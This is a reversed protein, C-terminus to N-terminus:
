DANEAMRSLLLRCNLQMRPLHFPGKWHCGKLDLAVSGDRHLYGYWEGCEPDAFHYASWRLLKLFWEKYSRRGTLHFALLTAYLAECHVWWLKMDWELQEPQKGEIDVFYLIGGYDRDWGLTLSWDIIPLAREMLTRDNKYAAEELIFWATEIAHGPNICRGEPLHLLLGGDMGVTEFLARREPKVFCSLVHEITQAILDDYKREPDAARLIQLTNIKIMATSHSQTKRTENFVKPPLANPKRELELVLKMTKRALDLAGADGTWWSSCEGTRTSDMASSLPEGRRGLFTIFGGCERDIGHSLWFPLTEQVLGRHFYTTLEGAELAGSETELDGPLTM